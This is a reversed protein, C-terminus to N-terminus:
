NYCNIKILQWYHKNGHPFILGHDKSGDSYSYHHGNLTLLTHAQNGTLVHQKFPKSFDKRAMFQLQYYTM